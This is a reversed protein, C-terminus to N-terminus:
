KSGFKKAKTASAAKFTAAKVPKGVGLSGLLNKTFENKTGVKSKKM